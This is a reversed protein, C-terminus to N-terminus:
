VTFNNPVRGATGIAEADVTVAATEVGTAGEDAIEAETAAVEPVDAVPNASTKRARRKPPGARSYLRAPSAFKARRTM